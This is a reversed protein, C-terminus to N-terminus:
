FYRIGGILTSLQEILWTCIAGLSCAHMCNDCTSKKNKKEGLLIESPGMLYKM